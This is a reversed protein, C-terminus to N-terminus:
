RDRTREDRLHGLGVREGLLHARRPHRERAGAIGVRRPRGFHGAYEAAERSVINNLLVLRTSCSGSRPGRSAISCTSFSAYPSGHTRPLSRLREARRVTETKRNQQSRHGPCARHAQGDGDRVCAAHARHARQERSRAPDALPHAFKAGGAAPGQLEIGPDGIRIWVPVSVRFGPRAREQGRPSRVHRRRGAIDRLGSMLSCHSANRSAAGVATDDIM